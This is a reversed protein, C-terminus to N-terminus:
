PHSSLPMWTRDSSAPSGTPDLTMRDPGAAPADPRTNRGRSAPDPDLLDRLAASRNRSQAIQWPTTGAANRWTRDCGHDLLVQILRASAGSAALHLYSDGGPLRHAADAGCSLLLEVMRLDSRRVAAVLPRFGDAGPSDPDTGLRLLEKAGELNGRIVAAQLPTLRQAADRAELAAGARVLPEIAGSFPAYLAALHLATVGDPGTARVEAGRALLLRLVEFRAQVLKERYPATEPRELQTWAALDAVLAPRGSGDRADAPMGADLFRTVAEPTGTGALAVFREPTFDLGRQDLWARAAERVAGPAPVAAPVATAPADAALAAGAGPPAGAALLLSLFAPFAM